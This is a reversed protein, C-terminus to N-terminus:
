NHIRSTIIYNSSLTSGMFWSGIELKVYLLWSPHTVFVVNYLTVTTRTYFHKKEEGSTMKLNLMGPRHQDAAGTRSAGQSQLPRHRLRSAATQLKPTPSMDHLIGHDLPTNPCWVKATFELKKQSFFVHEM